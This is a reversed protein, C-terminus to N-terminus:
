GFEEEAKTLAEKITVDMNLYKYQALRGCFIVKDEKKALMEYRKYLESNKEDNIPYYSEEGKTWEVPYEYTIVTKENEKFEFHKHEVIRTFPIDIDTYNVVAVGQFSYLPLVREEFKLSRYQLEGYCYNYFADINGTYFVKEGISDYYEKDDFYDANLKVDCAVLLKEFIQNYGGIPIGQYRTGYYDNDYKFRVPLRNIISAPLENCPRGWQKETYGKIIKEYIERGVLSIAQEELNFPKKTIGSSQRIIIEKAEEPTSVGWLQYFTNMNFPLNYIKNKFNAIPSNIFNNFEAFQCVYDWIEKDNTFFIHPGYKHVNIDEIEECYVNGGVQNRKEIVLCKQKRLGAEYAFVAGALGSGVIIYDYM